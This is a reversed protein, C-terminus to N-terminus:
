QMLSYGDNCKAYVSYTEGTKFDKITLKDGSVNATQVSSKAAFVKDTVPNGEDDVLEGWKTNSLEYSVNCQAKSFWALLNVPDDPHLIGDEPM